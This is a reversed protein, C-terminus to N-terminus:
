KVGPPINKRLFDALGDLWGFLKMRDEDPFYNSSIHFDMQHLEMGSRFLERGDNYMENLHQSREWLRQKRTEEKEKDTPEIKNMDEFLGPGYNFWHRCDPNECLINTCMGGSPGEYFENGNCYTCRLGKELFKGM